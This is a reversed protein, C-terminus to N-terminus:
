QLLLMKKVESFNETELRYFYVGSPVLRGASDKGDWMLDFRGAPQNKNVLIKVIQGLLNYIAVRVHGAEPVQYVIITQSNFPNPYNNYLVFEKPLQKSEERAIATPAEYPYINIDDIYWGPKVTSSDSVFHLRIRVDNFGTGCFATLSRADEKWAGQNGTYPDGLQHWTQGGDASAEVSGFDVDAQIYHRTYYSIHAANLKSFDFSPKYEIWSDANNEYSNGPGNKLSFKGSHASADTAVWKTDSQWQGIGAEFDDILSSVTIKDSLIDNLKNEDSSLQILFKVDYVYEDFTHWNEFIVNIKELSKLSDIMQTDSYIITGSSDIECSARINFEENLGANIVTVMPKLGFAFIPANYFLSFKPTLDHQFYLQSLKYDKFFKWIEVNANIDNTTNGAAGDMFNYGADPWTHGGGIVKYFLVRTNLIGNGYTIKEVTCGDLTDVDPISITDPETCFNFDAWFSVTQEPSWLYNSPVGGWPVAPDKTGHISLVPMPHYSDCNNAVGEIIGGAVTAIATIRQSLQCALKCSMLGGSSFGCAYIRELDISYHRDLTDILANIFGVDNVKDTTRFSWTRYNVIVGNPYVVIFGATDAVINMLTYNLQMQCDRTDGHLNFVVPIKANSNYNQPLFVLYDRTFGEFEFSGTEVQAFLNIQRFLIVLFFIISFHIIRQRAAFFLCSTYRINNM